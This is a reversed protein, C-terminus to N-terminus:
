QAKQYKLVNELFQVQRNADEKTDYNTGLVGHINSQVNYKYSTKTTTETDIAPKAAEKKQNQQKTMDEATIDKDKRECGALSDPMKVDGMLTASMTQVLIEHDIGNIEKMNEYNSNKAEFSREALKLLNEKSYDNNNIAQAIKLMRVTLRHKNKACLPYKTADIELKEICDSYQEALKNWSSKRADITKHEITKTVQETYKKRFTRYFNIGLGDKREEVKEPEKKESKMTMLGQALEECTLVSGKGAFEQLKSQFHKAWDDGYENKFLEATAIILNAKEKDNSYSKQIQEKYTEFDSYKEDALPFDTLTFCSRDPEEMGFILNALLKGTYDIGLGALAGLASFDAKVSQKIIVEVNDGVHIVDAAYNALQDAIRNYVDNPLKLRVNQNIDVKPAMIAGTAISFPDIDLAKLAADGFNRNKPKEEIQILNLFRKVDKDSWEDVGTLDRLEKKINEIEKMDFDEFTGVMVDYGVRQSIAESIESLDYTGNENKHYTLYNRDLKDFLENGKKSDYNFKRAFNSSLALKIDEGSINQLDKARNDRKLWRATRACDYSDSEVVETYYADDKPGNELLYNKVEKETTFKKGEEILQTLQIRIDERIENVVYSKLLTLADEYYSKELLGEDKLYKEVSEINKAYNKVGAQDNDVNKAENYKELLIEYEKTVRDAQALDVIQGALDKQFDNFETNNKIKNKLAKVDEKDSIEDQTIVTILKEVDNIVEAYDQNTFKKRLEDALTNLTINSNQVYGSDGKGYIFGNIANKIDAQKKELDKREARKEKREARKERWTKTTETDTEDATTIPNSSFGMIAKYDNEEIEANNKDNTFLFIKNKDLKHDKNIDYKEAIKRLNTDSILGLYIDNGM